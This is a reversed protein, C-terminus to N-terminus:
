SLFQSLKSEQPQQKPEEEPPPEEEKEPPIETKTKVPKTEQNVNKWAKKKNRLDQIIADNADNEEKNKMAKLADEIIKLYRKIKETAYDNGIKPEPLSLADQIRDENIFKHFKM